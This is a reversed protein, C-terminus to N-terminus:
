PRDEPKEPTIGLRDILSDRDSRLARAALSAVRRTLRTRSNFLVDLYWHQIAKRAEVRTLARRKPTKEMWVYM